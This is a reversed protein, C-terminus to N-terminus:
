TVCCCGSSHVLYAPAAAGWYVGAAIPLGCCCTVKQLAEWAEAICGNYVSTHETLSGTDTSAADSVGLQKHLSALINQCKDLLPMLRADAAEQQQQILKQQQQQEQQLGTKADAQLKKIDIAKEAEALLQKVKTAKFRIESLLVQLTQQQMAEQGEQHRQQQEGLTEDQQKEKLGEGPQSNETSIQQSKANGQRQQEDQHEVPQVETSPHHEEQQQKETEALQEHSQATSTPAQHQEGDVQQQRGEQQEVAQAETSEQRDSLEETDEKKVPKEDFQEAQLNQSKLSNEGQVVPQQGAEPKEKQETEQQKEGKEQELPQQKKQKGVSSQEKSVIEEVGNQQPQEVQGDAQAGKPNAASVKAAAAKNSRAM